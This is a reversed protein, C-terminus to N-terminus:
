GPRLHSLGRVYCPRRRPAAASPRFPDLCRPDFAALGAHKRGMFMKIFARPCHSILTEPFAVPQTLWFWHFYSQAFEFDTKDYMALTPCVDLFLAKRVARPYDVCLKHAVPTGRDHECTYFRSHGLQTMVAACDRAMTSTAYNAYNAGGAPKSSAGYGRLELAM